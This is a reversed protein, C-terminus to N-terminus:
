GVLREVTAVARKFRERDVKSPSMPPGVIGISMRHQVDTLQQFYGLMWILMTFDEAINALSRKALDLVTELETRRSWTGALKNVGCKAELEMIHLKEGIRKVKASESKATEFWMKRALERVHTWNENKYMSVWELFPIACDPPLYEPHAM